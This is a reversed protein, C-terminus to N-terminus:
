RPRSPKSSRSDSTNKNVDEAAKRRRQVEAVASNAMRRQDNLASKNVNEFATLPKAPAAEQKKKGFLSLFKDKCTRAFNVCARTFREWLSRHKPAANSVVIETNKQIREVTTKIREQLETMEKQAPMDDIKKASPLVARGLNKLMKANKDEFKTTNIKDQARNLDNALKSLEEAKVGEGRAVKAKLETCQQAIEELQEILAANLKQLNENVKVANIFIMMDELMHNLAKKAPANLVLGEDTKKVM